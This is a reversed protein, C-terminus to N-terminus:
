QKELIESLFRDVEAFATQTDPRNIQTFFGHDAGAIEVLQVEVLGMARQVFAESESFPVLSDATGHVLLFPPENGSLYTSPIAAAWQERILEQDINQAIGLYTAAFRQAGPCDCDLAEPMYFAVVGQIVPTEPLDYECDNLFPSPDDVTGILAAANGGASEGIAVMRTRDFGYLDANSYTWAMACFIDEIAAPFTFAPALRYNPAVVAYGLDTYYEAVPRLFEKRGGVYGGGHVIFLTPLLDSRDEPLYVDLVQREHGEVVYPIDPNRPTLEPLSQADLALVSFLTLCALLLYKM